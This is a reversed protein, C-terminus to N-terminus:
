GSGPPLTPLDTPPINPDTTPQETQDTQDTGGAPEIAPVATPPPNEESVCRFGITPSQSGPAASMRHVSRSFFPRQDWAGGRVVREGTGASPGQTDLQSAAETSYYDYQYWDYVWEAANGAMQEVGFPSAGEPYADISAVGDLARGANANTNSFSRGWPYIYSGPDTGRAAREWEAETPLRRGIAQCYAQAGFWSVNTVPRDLLVDVASYTSGDFQIPSTGDETQTAACLTGDCGDLHTGPGLTNLFAVYQSVSVEYREIQFSSLTVTHVPFSDQAMDITCTGGASTCEQVALAAETQNTGMEINTGGTVPMLETVIGALQPDVPVETPLPPLTPPPATTSTPVATTPTQTPASETLAAQPAQTAAPQQQGGGAAAQTSGAPPQAGGGGAAQLAAAVPTGCVEDLPGCVTPNLTELDGAVPTSDSDVNISVYGATMAVLIAVSACGFGMVIGVILWQWRADSQNRGLSSKYSM